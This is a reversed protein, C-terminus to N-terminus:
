LREAVFAVKRVRGAALWESWLRHARLLEELAEPGIQATIATADAAFADALREAM